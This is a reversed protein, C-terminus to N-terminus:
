SLQRMRIIRWKVAGGAPEPDGRENTGLEENHGDMKGPKQKLSEITPADSKM